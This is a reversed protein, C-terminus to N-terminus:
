EIIGMVTMLRAVALLYNYKSDVQHSEATRLSVEADLIDLITAAGLKYKEQALSFDEQASALEEDTLERAKVTEQLNLYAERAELEVARKSDNVGYEASHLNAKAYDNQRKTMFRDFINFSLRGGITTTYNRSWWDDLEGLEPGVWYKSASLSLTPLYSSRAYMLGHKAARLDDQASLFGPNSRLAQTSVDAISYDVDRIEVDEVRIEQDVPEGIAYNLNAQAKSVRNESTLSDLQAQSLSVKAKLVDSRSASGLEYKTQAIKMLEQTRELAKQTIKFTAQAQLLSFYQAKVNYATNLEQQSVKNRYSSATANSKAMNFVNGFGDFLVLSAELSAQYGHVDQSFEGEVFEGTVPDQFSTWKNHRYSGSMNWNLDPLFAGKSALADAKAQEFLGKTKVLTIDTKLAKDICEKLTYVKGQAHITAPAAVVAIVLYVTLTLIASKKCPRM